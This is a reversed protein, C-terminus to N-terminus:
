LIKLSQSQFNKKIDKIWQKDKWKNIWAKSEKKLNGDVLLQDSNSGKVKIESKTIQLVNLIDLNSKM